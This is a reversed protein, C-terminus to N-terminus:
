GSTDVLEQLLDAAKQLDDGSRKTSYNFAILRLAEKVPGPDLTMWHAAFREFWSAPKGLFSFPDNVTIERSLYWIAKKIETTDDDKMGLRWLYKVANGACFSMLETVEICEVGSGSAKYYPPNIKDTM